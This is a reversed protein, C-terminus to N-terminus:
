SEKGNEMVRKREEWFLRLKHQFDDNVDIIKVEGFITSHVTCAAKLLQIKLNDPLDEREMLKQLLKTIAVASNKPNSIMDLARKEINEPNMKDIGNIQQAIKRKESGSGKTLSRIYDSREDGRGKLPILDQETM